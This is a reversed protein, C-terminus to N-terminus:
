VYLRRRDREERDRQMVIYGTEVSHSMSGGRLIRQERGTLMIVARLLADHALIVPAWPPFPFAAHYAVTKYM